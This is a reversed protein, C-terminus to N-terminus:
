TDGTTWSERQTLTERCVQGLGGALIAWQPAHVASLCNSVKIRRVTGGDAQLNVTILQGSALGLLMTSAAVWAGQSGILDLEFGEARPAGKSASSAAQQLYPM